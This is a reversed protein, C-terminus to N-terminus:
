SHGTSSSEVMVVLVNTVILVSESDSIMEWSIASLPPGEVSSSLGDSGPGLSAIGNGWSVSLLEANTLIQNNSWVSFVVLLDGVVWTAYSVESIWGSVAKINVTAVVVIVSPNDVPSAMITSVLSPVKILFWVVNWSIWQPITDLELDFCSHGRISSKEPVFVDTRVLVSQSDLVIVWSVVSLPPGKVPSGSGDSGVRVSVSSNRDIKSDSITVESSISIVSNSSWEAFVAVLSYAEISSWSSVDSVSNVLAKINM